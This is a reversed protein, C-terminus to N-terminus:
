GAGKTKSVWLEIEGRFAELEKHILDMRGMDDPTEEPEPDLMALMSWFLHQAGAMFALRMEQLQIAPANLPIAHLRMAVWGAEILKGDNALQRTLAELFQRDAM